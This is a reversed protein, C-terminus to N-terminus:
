DESEEKDLIMMTMICYNAMDGLTDRISEDKVRINNSKVLSRLRNYKDSIRTVASIIGFDNFTDVFSDGYDGNKDSYIKNLEKCIAEHQEINNMEINREEPIESEIYNFTKINGCKICILCVEYEIFPETTSLRTLTKCQYKHKCAEEKLIKEITARVGDKISTYENIWFSKSGIYKTRSIMRNLRLEEFLTIEITGFGEFPYVKFIRGQTTYKFDKTYEFDKM